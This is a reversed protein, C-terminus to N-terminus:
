LRFKDEETLELADIARAFAAPSKELWDPHHADSGPYPIVGNWFHDTLCPM